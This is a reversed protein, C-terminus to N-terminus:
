GMRQKRGFDASCFCIAIALTVALSGGVAPHFHAYLSFLLVWGSALALIWALWWCRWRFVFFISALLEFFVLFWVAIEAMQAALPRSARSEVRDKVGLLIRRVAVHDAFETFLALIISRDTWHYRIRIRSVLRTHDPDLPYLGWTFASSPPAEDATWILYRNPVIAGFILYAIRSMYVRDGAAPHQLEPIIRNASHIGHQAGLNEIADYGYFGARDYGIQILWPWIDEPRGRITIARTALFTPRSVLDDGPMARAIEEPTAGWHLQAPRIAFIYVGLLLGLLGIISVMRAVISAAQTRKAASQQPKSM